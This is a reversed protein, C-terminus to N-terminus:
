QDGDDYVSIGRFLLEEEIGSKGHIWNFITAIDEDSLHKKLVEFMNENSQHIHTLIDKLTDPSQADKLLGEIGVMILPALVYHSYQVSLFSSDHVAILDGRITEFAERSENFPYSQIRTFDKNIVAQHVSYLYRLRSLRGDASTRFAIESWTAELEQFEEPPIPSQMSLYDDFDPRYRNYLHSIAHIFLEEGRSSHPPQVYITVTDRPDPYIPINTGDTRPLGTTVLVTHRKRLITSSDGYLDGIREFANRTTTIYAELEQTSINKPYLLTVDYSSRPLEITQEIFESPVYFIGTKEKAFTAYGIGSSTEGLPKFTDPVCVKEGQHEFSWLSPGSWTRFGQSGMHSVPTQIHVCGYPTATYLVFLLLIVASFSTAIHIQRRSLRPINM